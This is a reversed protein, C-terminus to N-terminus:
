DRGTSARVVTALASFGSALTEADEDSMEKLWGQLTSRRGSRLENVLDEGAVTARVLVRRRDSDDAHREAYGKKALQDVILSASPQGISLECGLATISIGETGANAVAILAKFQAMTIDREVLVPLIVRDMARAVTRYSQLITEDAKRRASM